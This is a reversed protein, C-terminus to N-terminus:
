GGVSKVAQGPLQAKQYESPIQGTLERFTKNFTSKANFGAEYAIGLISYHAFAPDVLLRKSEEVRHRNIFTYFSEGFGENLVQSLQTPSLRLQEALMSLTLDKNLYPKKDAMIRTVQGVLRQKDAETMTSNRYRTKPQEDLLDLSVTPAVNTYIAKQNIVYYGLLYSYAIHALGLLTPPFLGWNDLVWTTFLGIILLILGKLWRLDNQEVDALVERVTRQHRMILRYASILYALLVVKVYLLGMLPIPQRGSIWDLYQALQLAPPQLKYPLLWLAYILIPLAHLLHRPALRFQIQTMAQVYLLCLPGACLLPLSDIEILIPYQEYLHKSALLDTVNGAAHALCFLSLLRNALQNRGERVIQLFFAIMVLNVVTIGICISYTKLLLTM